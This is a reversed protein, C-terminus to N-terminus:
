DNLTFKVEKFIVLYEPIIRFAIFLDYVRKCKGYSNFITQM